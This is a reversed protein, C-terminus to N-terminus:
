ESLEEFVRYLPKLHHPKVKWPITHFEDPDIGTQHTDFMLKLLKNNDYRDIVYKMIPQEFCLIDNDLFLNAKETFANCFEQVALRPGGFFGAIPNEQPVVSIGDLTYYSDQPQTCLVIAFRNQIQANLKQIVRENMITQFNFQKHNDGQWLDLDDKHPNAWLPFLQIAQLGADIWYIFDLDDTCEREMVDFKGWMVQPPRGFLHEIHGETKNAVEMVRDNFKIDELELLKIELNDLSYKEKIWYVDNCSRKDTYCVVPINFNKCHYVIGGLYRHGRAPASGVWKGNTNTLDIGMWYATVLKTKEM